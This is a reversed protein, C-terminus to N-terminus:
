TRQIEREYLRRREGKDADRATVLYYTTREKRKIVLSLIRSGSRGGAVYREKKSKKHWLVNRAAVEVEDVNLNHKKIHEINYNDWVLTKIKIRTM